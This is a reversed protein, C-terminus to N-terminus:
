YERWKELLMSIQEHTMTKLKPCSACLYQDKLQYRLCCVRRLRVPDALNSYFAPVYRIAHYMPALCHDNEDTELLYRYALRVSSQHLGIYSLTAEIINAANNWLVRTNLKGYAALTAFAYRLARLLPSYARHIDASTNLNIRCLQVSQQNLVLQYPLGNPDCLLWSDASSCTILRHRTHLIWVWHMLFLSLWKKSWESVTAARCGIPATCFCTLQDLFTPAKAQDFCHFLAIGAEPPSGCRLTSAFRALSGTWSNEFLRNFQEANM